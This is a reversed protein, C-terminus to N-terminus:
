PNIELQVAMLALNMDRLFAIMSGILAVIAVCFIAVIAGASEWNLLASLFLALMLIGDMLVTVAGLTISVRLITSRRYLIDIQARLKGAEEGAPAHALEHMLTRSRDVLRGFRNTLTLLLLGVGSILIVPGISLQLIPILERLSTNM